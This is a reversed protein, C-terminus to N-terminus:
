GQHYDLKKYKPVSHHSTSLFAIPHVLHVALLIGDSQNHGLSLSGVRSQIMGLLILVSITSSIIPDIAAWM